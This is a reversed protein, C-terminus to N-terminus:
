KKLFQQGFGDGKSYINSLVKSISSEEERNIIEYVMADESEYYVNLVRNEMNKYASVWQEVDRMM